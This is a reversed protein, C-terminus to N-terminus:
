IPFYRLGNATKLVFISNEEQLLDLYGVLMPIAPLSFNQGYLKHILGFFDSVGESIWQLCETKRQQIRNVQRQIAEQPNNFVEYHGPYVIEIDMKSFKDYSELLQLIGKNRSYPPELNADIVPTPTIRLLMDASFLQKSEAQYFCTQSICHGPAYVVQWTQGGFELQGNISFVKVREKPIPLWFGDFSNFTKKFVKTIPSDGMEDLEKVITQLRIKSMKDLNVAWDYAYESVWIEAESHECIRGAMGMHDLHPHTIIVKRIDSIVLGNAALANQLAKWSKDSNEGCDILTPEPHIYLYSNVTKMGFITPLEIRIPSSYPSNQLSFKSSESSFTEQKNM